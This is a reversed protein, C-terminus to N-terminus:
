KKIDNFKYYINETIQGTKLIIPKKLEFDLIFIFPIRRQGFDNMKDIWTPESVINKSM